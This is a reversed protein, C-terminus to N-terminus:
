KFDHSHALLVELYGVITGHRHKSWGVSLVDGSQTLKGTLISQLSKVLAEKASRFALTHLESIETNMSVNSHQNPSNRCLGRIVM